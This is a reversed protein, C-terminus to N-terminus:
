DPVRGSGVEEPAGPRWRRNLDSEIYRRNRALAALNGALGVLEGRVRVRTSAITAFVRKLAEVGAPENGHIGGICVLTPGPEEGSVRGLVRRLPEDGELTRATEHTM